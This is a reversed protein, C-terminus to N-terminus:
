RYYFIDLWVYPATGGATDRSTVWGRPFGDNMATPKMTISPSATRPMKKGVSHGSTDDNPPM